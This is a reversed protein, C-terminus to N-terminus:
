NKRRHALVLGLLVLIVLYAGVAPTDAPSIAKVDAGGEADLSASLTPSAAPTKGTAFPPPPPAVYGGGSGTILVTLNLPGITLGGFDATVSVPISTAPSKTEGVTIGLVAEETSKRGVDGISPELYVSHEASVGTVTLTFPTDVYGRNILGLSFQALNGVAARESFRNSYLTFNGDSIGPFNGLNKGTVTPKASPRNSPESDNVANVTVVEYYYTQGNALGFDIYASIADLTAILSLNGTASTSRFIKTSRVMACPDALSPIWSLAVQAAGATATLAPKVPKDIPIAPCGATVAFGPLQIPFQLGSPQDKGGYALIYSSVPPDDAGTLDGPDNFGTLNVQLEIVTGKPILLGATPLAWASVVPSPSLGVVSQTQDHVCLALTGSHCTLSGFNNRIAREGVMLTVNLEVQLQPGQRIRTGSTAPPVTPPNIFFWLRLEANGSVLYTADSVVSGLSVAQPDPSWVLEKEQWAAATPPVYSLAGGGAVFLGLIDGNYFFSTPQVQMTVSSARDASGFEVRLQAGTANTAFMQEIVIRLTFVEGAKVNANAANRIGKIMSYPVSTNKPLKFPTPSHNEDAYESWVLEDYRWVFVCSGFVNASCPDLKGGKHLQIEFKSLVLDETANFWLNVAGNGFKVAASTLIIKFNGEAKWTGWDHPCGHPTTTENDCLKDSVTRHLYPVLPTINRLAATPSQPVETTLGDEALFLTLGKAATLTGASPTLSYSFFAVLLLVALFYYPARRM